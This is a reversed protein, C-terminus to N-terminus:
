DVLEVVRLTDEAVVEVVLFIILEEVCKVLLELHVQFDVAPEVLVLQLVEPVV